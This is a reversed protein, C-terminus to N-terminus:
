TAVEVDLLDSADIVAVEGSAFHLRLRGDGNSTIKYPRCTFYGGLSHRLKAYMANVEAPEGCRCDTGPIGDCTLCWNAWGGNRYEHVTGPQTTATNTM